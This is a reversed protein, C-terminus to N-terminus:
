EGWTKKNTQKNQKTKKPGCRCCISARLSRTLNSSCSGTWAVAVAVCHRLWMHSRCWLEPLVVDKFQALGSIVGADEHIGTLNMVWQAM